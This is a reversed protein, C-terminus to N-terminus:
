PSSCPFYLILIDLTWISIAEKTNMDLTITGGDSKKDAKAEFKFLQNGGYKINFLSSAKLPNPGAFSSKREVKFSTEM